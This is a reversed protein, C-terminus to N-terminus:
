ASSWGNWWHAVAANGDTGRLLLGADNLTRATPSDPTVYPVLWLMVKFGLEHLRAVMAAPAPFRGPHFTWTGYDDSWRDDIMLVGPAFGEALLREAYALVKDQTPEFVTEIWLNYQPATFLLPDPLAGTAPHHRAMVDRYAGRLDGLGDAHELETAPDHPTVTLSEGSVAFGFTRSSHVWRGKNSVLVPMGQNGLVDRLDFAYGDPFPMSRGEAAAGGWWREGELLPLLLPTGPATVRVTM